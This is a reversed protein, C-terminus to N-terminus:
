RARARGVGAGVVALTTAAIGVIRGEWEAWESVQFGFIFLAVLLVGLSALLAGALPYGVLKFVNM